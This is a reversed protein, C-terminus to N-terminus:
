QEKQNTSQIAARGVFNSRGLSNRLGYRKGRRPSRTKLGTGCDTRIAEVAPFKRGFLDARATAWGEDFTRGTAFQM